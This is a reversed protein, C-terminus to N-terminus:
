DTALRSLREQIQESWRKLYSFERYLATAEDYSPASTWAVSLEQLAADLKQRRVNIQSQLQTLQDFWDMGDTFLKVKALPSTAASKEKLFKDVAQFVPALNFFLDVLSAPNEQLDSPPQGTELKILYALRDKPERLCNYAANLEAYRQNAAEKDAADARDPHREGSLALFGAKLADVELWPLRPQGLLAFYDM